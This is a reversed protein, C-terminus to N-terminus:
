YDSEWMREQIEAPSEFEVVIPDIDDDSDFCFGMEEFKASVADRVEEETTHKVLETIQFSSMRCLFYGYSNKFHPGFTNIIKKEGQNEHSRKMRKAIKTGIEDLVMQKFNRYGFVHGVQNFVFEKVEALAAESVLGELEEVPISHFVQKEAWDFHTNFTDDNTELNYHDKLKDAVKQAYMELNSKEM